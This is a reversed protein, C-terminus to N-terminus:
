VIFGSPVSACREKGAMRVSRQEVRSPRGVSVRERIPISSGPSISMRVPGTPHCSTCTFWSDGDVARVSSETRDPRGVASLDSTRRSSARCGNVDPRHVTVARVLDVERRRAGSKPDQRTARRCASRRRRRLDLHDVRPRPRVGGVNRVGARCRARSAAWGRDVGVGARTPAEGGARTGPSRRHRTCPGSGCGRGAAQSGRTCGARSTM